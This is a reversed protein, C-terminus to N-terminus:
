SPQFPFYLDFVARGGLNPKSINHIIEETDLSHRIRVYQLMCLLGFECYFRIYIM